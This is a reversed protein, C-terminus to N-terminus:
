LPGWENGSAGTGTVQVDNVYQVNVNLNGAVTFTLGQLGQVWAEGVTWLAPVWQFDVTADTTKFVARYNGKGGTTTFSGLLRYTYLGDGVESAIAAAVIKVGAPDYVDVTPLPSLGSKGVKSATFFVDFILDQGIQEIM